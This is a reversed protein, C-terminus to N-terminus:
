NARIWKRAPYTLMLKSLFFIAQKNNQASEFSLLM